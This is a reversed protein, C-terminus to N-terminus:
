VPDAAAADSPDHDASRAAGHVLGIEFMTIVPNDFPSPHLDPSLHSADM